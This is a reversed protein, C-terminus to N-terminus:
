DESIKLAIFIPGGRRQILIPISKDKPLEEVMKNFHSTDKVKINNILLIIDGRRIGAKQAAGELVSEVLVGHDEFELEKKQQETLDKVTINLANSKIASGNGTSAIQLEDDAPLEAVTVNLTQTKGKRIIEVPIKAGIRSSGVMPPLDSSFSIEKGDFKVVVDGVEFGAKEAPGGPLVKAILAGHPHKMGFSEALERTVDQILVGLWGRSVHGKDRLQDYVNTVVNIPVAFSLGMFGGTRSYIQSNVGVVEGDLNFLPGGSNGPNIAVDTQIFPVYNENPLSRGIASVIGATVSHNFGFPSGIALVWEGVELKDSNGLKVSPLNEGTIKLVAIDSRPDTGVLEAIFERRDQLSVVIEEADKVVHNNTIVYGDESLIFGSGLSARQEFPDLGGEPIDGFFKRFFDYFPSDEPIDPMNYGPPVGRGTTQKKATSSINVVAASNKEVLPTFDPLTVAYVNGALVFFAVLIFQTFRLLAINRYKMHM